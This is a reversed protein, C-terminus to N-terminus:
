VQPPVHNEIYFEHLKLAAAIRAENAASPDMFQNEEAKQNKTHWTGDEDRWRVTASGRDYNWGIEKWEFTIRDDRGRKRGRSGEVGHDHVAKVIESIITPDETIQVSVCCKKDYTWLITVYLEEVMNPVKVQVSEPATIGGTFMERTGKRKTPERGLPDQQKATEKVIREIEINRADMLDDLFKDFTLYCGCLARLKRNSKALKLYKREEVTVIGAPCWADEDAMYGGAIVVAGSPLFAVEVPRYAQGEM